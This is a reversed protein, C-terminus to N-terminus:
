KMCASLDTINKARQICPIKSQLYILEDEIKELLENKRKDDWLLIFDEEKSGLQEKMHSFHAICQNAEFPSDGTQLCERTKKLSLLLKPLIEKQKKYIDQTISHIFNKREKNNISHKSITKNSEKLNYTVHKLIKCVNKTKNSNKTKISDNLLGFKHVPYDPVECHEESLNINFTAKRAIKLYSVGLINAEIKLVIGKYICKKLGKGEWIDCLFGAVKEQNNKVLGETEDKVSGTKEYRTRELIQQNNYDVTIIKDKTQKEFYKIKQKHKIAGTTLVVGSDEELKLNGWEKFLLKSKGEISLNTEATLQTGGKIDYLVIGSEIGYPKQAQLLTIYVFLICSVKFSQFM